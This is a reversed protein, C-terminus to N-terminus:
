DRLTSHSDRHAALHLSKSLPLPVAAPTLPSLGLSQELWDAGVSAVSVSDTDTDTGTDRDRDRGLQVHANHPSQPPEQVNGWYEPRGQAEAQRRNGSSGWSCKETQISFHTASAFTSTRYRSRNSKRRARGAQGRARRQSQATHTRQTRPPRPPVAEVGLEQLLQAAQKEMALLADATAASGSDSDLLLQMALRPLELQECAAVLLQRAAGIDIVEAERDRQTERLREVERQRERNRAMSSRQRQRTASTPQQAFAARYDLCLESCIVSLMGLLRESAGAASRAGTSSREESGSSSGSSRSSGSGAVVSWADSDARMDGPEDMRGTGNDDHEAPSTGSSGVATSLSGEAVHVTPTGSPEQKTQETAKQRERGRGAERQKTQEKAKKPKKTHTKM